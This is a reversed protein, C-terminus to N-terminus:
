ARIRAGVAADDHQVYVVAPVMKFAAHVDEIISAKGARARENSSFILLGMLRKFQLESRQM